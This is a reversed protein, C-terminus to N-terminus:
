FRARALRGLGVEERLYVAICYCAQVDIELRTRQRTRLDKQVIANKGM